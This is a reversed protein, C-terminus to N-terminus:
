LSRTQKDLAVIPDLAEKQARALERQATQAEKIASSGASTGGGSPSGTGSTQVQSLTQTTQKAQQEVSTLADKIQREWPALQSADAQLILRLRLEDFNSQGPM